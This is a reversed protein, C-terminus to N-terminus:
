ALIEDQLTQLFRAAEAGDVVRHDTALSFWAVKRGGPADVARAVALVATQGHFVFPQFFDVGGLLAAIAAAILAHRTRENRWLRKFWEM